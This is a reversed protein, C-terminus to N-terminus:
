VILALEEKSVEKVVGNKLWNQWSDLTWISNPCSGYKYVVITEGNKNLLKWYIVVHQQFPIFYRPYESKKMMGKM